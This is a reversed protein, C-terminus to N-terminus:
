KASEGNTQSATESKLKGIWTYDNATSSKYRLGLFLLNGNIEKIDLIGYNEEWGSTILNYGADKGNLDMEKIYAQYKENPDFRSKMWKDRPKYQGFAVIDGNSLAEIGYIKIEYPYKKYDIHNIGYFENQWISKFQYDYKTIQYKVNSRSYTINGSKYSADEVTQTLMVFGGDNTMSICNKASSNRPNNVLLGADLLKEGLINGNSDIRILYIQNGSRGVLILSNDHAKVIDLLWQSTDSGIVKEWILKGKLDIKFFWVNSSWADAAKVAKSGGATGVFIYGDEVEAWSNINSAPGAGPLPLKLDDQLCISFLQKMNADIKDIYSKEMTYKKSSPPMSVKSSQRQRIFGGDSTPRYESTFDTNIYDAAEDWKSIADFDKSSNFRYIKHQTLTNITKKSYLVANNQNDTYINGPVFHGLKEGEFLVRDWDIHHNQEVAAYCVFSSIILAAIVFILLRKM